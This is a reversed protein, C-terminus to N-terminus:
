TRLRGSVEDLRELGQLIDDTLLDTSGPAQSLKGYRLDSLDSIAMGIGKTVGDIDQKLRDLEVEVDTCATELDPIVSELSHSQSNPSCDAPGFIAMDLEVDLAVESDRTSIDNEPNIRRLQRRLRDGRKVERTINAQVDDVDLARLHQLERYLLKVHPHDRYSRPFLDRFQRLSVVSPLPAPSLLFRRLISSESPAM